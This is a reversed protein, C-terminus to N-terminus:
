DGNQTGSGISWECIVLQALFPPHTPAGARRRPSKAAAGPAASGLRKGSQSRCGEHVCDRRGEDLWSCMCATVHVCQPPVEVARVKKGGDLLAKLNIGAYSLEQRSPLPLSPPQAEHSVPISM